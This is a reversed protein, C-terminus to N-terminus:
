LLFVRGEYVSRRVRWVRTVILPLFSYLPPTQFIHCFEASGLNMASTHSKLSGLFSMSMGNGQLSLFCTLWQAFAMTGCITGTTTILARRQGSCAIQHSPSQRCFRNSSSWSPTRCREFKWFSICWSSWHVRRCYFPKKGWSSIKYDQTDSSHM